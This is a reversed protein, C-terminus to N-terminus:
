ELAQAAENSKKLIDEITGLNKEILSVFNTNKDGIISNTIMDSIPTAYITDGLDVFRNKEIINLMEESDDDRLFKTRLAVEFYAPIVYNKSEVALAEMIVSTRALDTASVPVTNIWGRGARSYYLNQAEDYKPFPLIGFDTEMARLGPVARLCHSYFLGYNESFPIASDRPKDYAGDFYIKDGGYLNECVKDLIDYFKPSQGAFVHLDNADKEVTRVGASSWFAPVFESATSLIGYRDNETMKGDGDLDAAALRAYSFFVDMTWKGDKVLAYMNGLGLDATMQKNFLVCSTNELLNLCEDSYAFFMKGDITMESNISEVYWPKTIDLHPLDATMVAGGEVSQSWAYRPLLMCLDFDESASRVAKKFNDFCVDYSAVVVGKFIIDYREEILRNRKYIADPLTEGTEEEVDAELSILHDFSGNKPTMVRFEYGGYTVKPLYDASYHSPKEETAKEGDPLDGTKDGADGGLPAEEGGCGSLLSVSVALAFFVFIIKSLFKSMHVAREIKKIISVMIICAKKAKTL